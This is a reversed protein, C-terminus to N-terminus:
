EKDSGDSGTVRSLVTEAKKAAAQKIKDQDDQQAGSLQQLTEANLKPLGNIIEMVRGLANIGKKQVSAGDASLCLATVETEISALETFAPVLAPPIQMNGSAKKIESQVDKLRSLAASKKLTENEERLQKERPTEDSPPPAALKVVKGDKVELGHDKLGAALATVRDQEAKVQDLATKQMGVAKKAAEEIQEPTATEPLGLLVAIKKPDMSGEKRSLSKDGGPVTGALETHILLDLSDDERSLKIFDHQGDLVAMPTACVHTFAEDFVGGKTDNVKPDIRASVSRISREEIKKAAELDTVEVEGVLRDGDVWFRNWWGLTKKAEFNHGDQFPVAKRDLTQRYAETNRVLNRIREPTIDVLQKTIPHIWKGVRLVDKVFRRPGQGTFGDGQYLLLSNKM